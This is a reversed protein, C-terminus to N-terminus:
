GCQPANSTAFYQLKTPDFSNRVLRAAMVESSSGAIQLTMCWQEM